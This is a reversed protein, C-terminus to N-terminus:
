HPPSIADAVQQALWPAISYKGTDVSLYSGSRQIGIRDRRHLGSKEDALSGEGVAYVWGGELRLEEAHRGIDKVGPIVRGLRDLIEDVVRTRDADSLVPRAPPAVDGGEAVLGSPYWSVYFRTPSYRKVDGFPGTAVVTSPVAVCHRTRVFASLRYRHTRIPPLPQEMGADIALRGEWLANVVFDFPGEIGGDTDVLLPADRESTTRRVQTVRTQMFPEVRHETDLAQVFRDALWQTDVSREPVRFGAVVHATDYDADLHRASLREVRAGTVDALYRKADPHHGALSTVADLYRAMAEAGIVSDRHVLYTDDHQAIADSLSTGILAEVLPKFMLGGPLLRKATQLTPDAAYLHGLHIKGENWRSAGDFPCAAADILSVQVGRRALLLATASGMIGAGLVAVKLPNKM